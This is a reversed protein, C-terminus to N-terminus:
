YITLRETGTVDGSKLRVIYIGPKWEDIQVEFDSADPSSTYVMRGTIDLIELQDVRRDARVRFKAHAPNPYMEFGVEAQEVIGIDTANLVDNMRPTIFWVVTDIYALSQAKNNPNTENAGLPDSPDWFDWPNSNVAFPLNPDAPPIAIPFIGSYYNPNAWHNKGIKWVTDTYNTRQFVYNNYFQNAMAIARGSGAVPVVDWFQGNVPVRVMGSDYPAFFDYINHISLMPIDGPELWSQDGLAGGMNVVMSVDDPVGAHNVYNRGPQTFDIEPLGLPTTNGTLTVEGGYGNWDGVVATDVYPDGVNVTGGFIGVTDQYQFKDLNTVEGLKDLTAYAFTIYGGSGQGILIIKSPDIGMPDGGVLAQGRVARVCAKADQVANYVALLNSGRRLDLNQTNDPQWGLRYSASIAVYGRRALARCIEVAASDKRDGMPSVLGKPLFSGTHLYIVVAKDQDTDVAPSPMYVDMFQPILQPGGISAPVYASFNIGYPIDTTDIIQADTFLEDVYRTQANLASTGLILAGAFLLLKKM